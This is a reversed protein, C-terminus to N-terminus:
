LRRTGALGLQRLRYQLTQRPIGLRQAALKVNGGSRALARELVMREFAAQIRPWSHAGPGGDLRAWLGDMGAERLSSVWSMDPRDQSAEQPAMLSAKADAGPGGGATGARPSLGTEPDTRRVAGVAGVSGALRQGGRWERLHAPLADMPIEGSTVLNMASEIANELERVNGPWPYEAFRRSVEATVGTVQTGFRGNWKDVFHAVLLPLDGRRDRLPPLDLRVVNIRYYLDERLRGEAVEQEPWRNMAAIVRVQVYRVRTDGVRMFEGEQLARLLKAQLDLPMSQIEDLFLTGGDALEFLGPRDEAGTFSGRVTGFLIGELLPAPLAACNLALFPSGRRPGANHIAQVLLEKGTGTEGYVLVPSTTAAARQARRKIDAVRPDQSIIHSFQYVAGGPHDSVAGARGTGGPAHTGIDAVPERRASRRHGSAVQAQLDIVQESLRKVQTLDKAIELAGVVEGGSVIPLTTNVTHVKFGLYNTYTQTRNHIARGTELVQLLTSTDNALSPFAELVHKGLVDEPALGDLRGAARNYLITIGARDVAHIGEDITELIHLLWEHTLPGAPM